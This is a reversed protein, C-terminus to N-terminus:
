RAPSSHDEDLQDDPGLEAPGIPRQPRAAADHGRLVAHLRLSDVGTDTSGSHVAGHRANHRAPTPRAPTRRISLTLTGDITNANVGVGAGIYPTVIGWHGLDFFANAM